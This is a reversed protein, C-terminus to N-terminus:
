VLIANRIFSFQSRKIVPLIESAPKGRYGLQLEIADAIFPVYLLAIAGPQNTERQSFRQALM